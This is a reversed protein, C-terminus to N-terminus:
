GFRVSADAKAAPPANVDIGDRKLDAAPAAEALTDPPAAYWGPDAYSTLADRVKLITFMGGMTITDYKGRGGTMPISNKPVAMGMDGMDGMGTEGMSMYGPLLRNAKDLKSPKVGIMNPIGHGMQNMVHHTMHCHMAWDGPEDAVFEITRTSGVPVLVTTDPWQASRPIEGGDTETIQFQYGHLHIPHHDMASLNGIRIRVREGTKVVLPDTGPFAKANLTLINFDTMENPDPRKAGPLIRWEHLMLAFDRDVRPGRPRRPHIIFLGTMGLGMQTMEDHHSHYMGMGTQRITFEYKFTEGPQIAKQNLGGVGDMGNPLLIGHWHVTTPAPLRNTVYFRVRDRDVVEIAPGHVHGNYGWCLAKLGPAFEHELEEAVMHFVKVGDVVKWPMKAGNPVIVPRYDRGPQAPPLWDRAAHRNGTAAASGARPAAAGPVDAALANRAATSAIASAALTAAGSTLVRRRSMAESASSVDALHVSVPATGASRHSANTREDNTSM